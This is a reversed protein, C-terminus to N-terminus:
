RVYFPAPRSGEVSVATVRGKFTAQATGGLERYINFCAVTRAFFSFRAHLLDADARRRRSLDRTSCIEVPLATRTDECAVHLAAVSSVRSQASRLLATLPEALALTRSFLVGEGVM